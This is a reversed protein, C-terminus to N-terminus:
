ISRLAAAVLLDCTALPTSELRPHRCGSSRTMLVDLHGLMRRRSGILAVISDISDNDLM